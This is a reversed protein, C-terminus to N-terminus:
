RFLTSWSQPVVKEHTVRAIPGQAPQSPPQAMAIVPTRTTPESASTATLKPSSATPRSPQTSFANTRWDSVTSSMRTIVATHTMPVSSDALTCFTSIRACTTKRSTKTHTASASTYAPVLAYSETSGPNSQSFGNPAPPAARVPPSSSPTKM